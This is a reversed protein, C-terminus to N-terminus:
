RGERHYPSGSLLSIARYIQEAAMAQALKHPWTMKGFSLVLDAKDLTQIGWGDAPGVMLVIEQVGSERWSNIQSSFQRTSWNKGCEDLVVRKCDTANSEMALRDIAETPMSARVPVQKCIVDSIGLGRGQRRARNLYDQVLDTEPGPKLKGCVLLILKM